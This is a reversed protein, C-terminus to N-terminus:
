DFLSRPLEHRLGCRPCDVNIHIDAGFVEDLNARVAGGLADAIKEPTCGCCFMFPRVELPSRANDAAMARVEEAPVSQLWEVDCDPQAVLAAFTDGGLYFFRGPRQESQSYFREAAALVDDGSFDVSSRRRIGESGAIEAHLVNTGVSRVNGSFVRGVLHGTTNEAAVFINLEKDEFHITWALTENRPRTAAYLAVAALSQKLLEDTGDRLVVAARGLHLYCEMFVGAFDGSVLLANRGAVFRCELHAQGNEDTQEAERSM